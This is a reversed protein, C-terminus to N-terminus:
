LNFVSRQSKSLMFTASAIKWSSQSNKAALYLHPSIQTLDRAQLRHFAATASSYSSQHDLETIPKSDNRLAM